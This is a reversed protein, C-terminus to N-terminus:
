NDDDDVGGGEGAGGVWVSGRKWGSYRVSKSCVSDWIYYAVRYRLLPRVSSM